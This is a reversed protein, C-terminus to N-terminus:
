LKLQFVQREYLSETCGAQMLVVIRERPEFFGVVVARGGDNEQFDIGDEIPHARISTEWRKEGPERLRLRLGITPFYQWAGRQPACM